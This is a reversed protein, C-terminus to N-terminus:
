SSLFLDREAMCRHGQSRWGRLRQPVPLAGAAAGPEPVVDAPLHQCLMHRRPEDPGCVREPSCLFPWSLHAGRTGLAGRPGLTPNPPVKKRRECNPDDINHFSNEDIEGLWVHEGIGVLCNPNGRCNRRPLWVGVIVGMDRPPQSPHCLPPIPFCMINFPILCPVGGGCFGTAMYSSPPPSSSPTKLCFLSGLPLYPVLCSGKDPFGPLSLAQGLELALATCGALSIPERCAM